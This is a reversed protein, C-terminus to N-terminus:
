YHKSIIKQTDTYKKFIDKHPAMYLIVTVGFSPVGSYPSWCQNAYFNNNEHIVDLVEVIVLDETKLSM